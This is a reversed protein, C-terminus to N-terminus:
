LGMKAVLAQFRPDSRLPDFRPDVKLFVMWDDRARYGAELLELARTKEGLGLHAVALYTPGVYAVGIHHELSDLLARARTSDGASAYAHALATQMEIVPALQVARRLAAVAAPAQHQQELTLGLGSYATESRPFVAISREFQRVAEDYRRDFFEPWGQQTVTYPTLPDLQISHEVEARDETYRSRYRMLFALERHAAAHSPNLAIARRLEREAGDWDWAYDLLATGLSAHGDACSDDLAIARHAAAIAKPMAVTPAEFWSSLGWESDALGAWAPAYTSDRTIAQQYLRVANRLGPEDLQDWAVKGRLCLAYAEPDVARHTALRRVEAPKLRIRVQEGIARAIENQLALVDRAPRVFTQAWLPADSHAGVLRATVRIQDGARMVAGEIIDQVHLERAVDALPKPHERYGMVSSRSTVRLASIQALTTILEDTMGDALYQQSADGSLNDLPLVALAQAVPPGFFGHLLAWALVAFAVGGVALAVRPWWRSPAGHVVKGSAIAALVSRLEMPNTIRRDPDKELCRAVLAALPRPVSAPLPPPPDQLVAALTETVSRRHFPPAAVLMEHVLVGFAWVDAGIDAPQGKLVEPAMYDPTGRVLGSVTVTSQSELAANPLALALGFDLVVAQGDPTLMINASSLDRHVLGRAHAYALADAIQGAFRVAEDPTLAGSALRERLTVGEVLDMVVFLRGDHEGVDHIGCIHHHRLRSALRAERMLGARAQANGALAEPLRKLARECRLEPDYARYVEGQGGGGLHGLIRFRGIQEM